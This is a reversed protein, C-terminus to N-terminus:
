WRTGSGISALTMHKMVWVWGIATSGYLVLGLAFVATAFSREREAALKLYYDGVLTVVAIVLFVVVVKM